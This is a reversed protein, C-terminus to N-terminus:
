PADSGEERVPAAAQVGPRLYGYLDFSVDLGGEGPTAQGTGPAFYFRQAVVNLNGVFLRPSGTEIAHLVAALEPVGCQLRVQITVRAYTDRQPENLPSRNVIACGRNGPSAQAVIAELRQALAATALEASAEPLFGPTRLQQARAQQLLRRVQPAQALAMRQRLERQQLQAIRANAERLPQTWWPHVLLLYALGIVALLLALALWRDRRSVATM